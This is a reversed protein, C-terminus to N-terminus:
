HILKSFIRLSTVTFNSRVNSDYAPATLRLDKVTIEISLLLLTNRMRM